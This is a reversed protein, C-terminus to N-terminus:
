AYEVLGELARPKKRKVDLLAAYSPDENPGPFLEQFNPLGRTEFDPELYFVADIDTVSANFSYADFGPLACQQRISRTPPIHNFVGIDKVMHHTSTLWPNTFVFSYLVGRHSGKPIEDYYAKGQDNRMFKHTAFFLATGADFTVDLGCTDIGYHQEVLFLDPAGSLKHLRWRRGYEQSEPDDFDELDSMTHLGYRAFNRDALEPGSPLGYYVLDDGYITEFISGPVNANFRAIWDDRFQRWFSPIVLRERGASDAQVPNPFSRSMWYENNQGRFSLRGSQLFAGHRDSNLIENLHDLSRIRYVPPAAKIDREDALIRKMRSFSFFGSHQKNGYASDAIQLESGGSFNTMVNLLFFGSEAMAEIANPAFGEAELQRFFESSDQAPLTRM